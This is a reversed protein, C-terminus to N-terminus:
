DSFYHEHTRGYRDAVRVYVRSNCTDWGDYYAGTDGITIEFGDLIDGLDLGARAPAAALATLLGAVLGTMLLFLRATRMANRRLSSYQLAKGRTPPFCESGAVVCGLLPLNM